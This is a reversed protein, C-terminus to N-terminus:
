TLGKAANLHATVVPVLGAAFAKLSADQGSAAYTKLTDLTQQHADAQAVAYATDFAAGTKSKLDSLAQQQAPNLAADPMVGPKAGAAAAKLKATSDTHAKIMNAAFTKIKASQANAAALESTAIEFADSAAAANAFTQAPSTAAPSPEATEAPAAAVEAPNAAPEPAKKCGALGLAAAAVALLLVPKM